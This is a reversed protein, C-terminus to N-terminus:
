LCHLLTFGVPNIWLLIGIVIEALCMAIHFASRKINSM